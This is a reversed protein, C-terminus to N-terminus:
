KNSSMMHRPSCPGDLASLYQVPARSAMWWTTLGRKKLQIVDKSATLM